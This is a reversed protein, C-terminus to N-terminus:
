PLVLGTKIDLGTVSQAEYFLAFEWRRKIIQGDERMCYLHRSPKGRWQGDKRNEVSFGEDTMTKQAEALSVGVPVLEKIAKYMDEPKSVKATKRSDCGVLVLLLATLTVFVSM